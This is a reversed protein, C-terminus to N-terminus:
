LETGMWQLRQTEVACLIGGTPFLSPKRLCRQSPLLSYQTRLKHINASAPSRSAPSAPSFAKTDRITGLWVEQPDETHRPELAWNHYPSGTWSSPLSFLQRWPQQLVQDMRDPHNAFAGPVFCRREGEREKKGGSHYGPCIWSALCLEGKRRQSRGPRGAGWLRSRLGSTRHVYM